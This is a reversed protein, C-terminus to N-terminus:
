PMPQIAMSYSGYGRAEQELMTEAGAPPALVAGRSAREEAVVQAAAARLAEQTTATGPEFVHTGGGFRDSWSLSIVDSPVYLPMRVVWLYFNPKLAASDEALLGRLVWGVPVRYALTQSLRWGSDLVPGVLTKWKSSRM